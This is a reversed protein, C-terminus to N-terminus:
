AWMYAIVQHDSDHEVYMISAFKPLLGQEFPSKRMQAVM